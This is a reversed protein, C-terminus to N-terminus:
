LYGLRMAAIEGISSLDGEAQEDGDPYFKAVDADLWDWRNSKNALQVIFEIIKENDSFANLITCLTETEELSNMLLVETWDKADDSYYFVTFGQEQTGAFGYTKKSM